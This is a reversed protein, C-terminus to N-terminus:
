VATRRRGQPRAFTGSYEVLDTASVALLVAPASYGHQEMTSIDVLRRVVHRLADPSTHAYRGHILNLLSGVAVAAVAGPLSPARRTVVWSLSGLRSDARREGRLRV